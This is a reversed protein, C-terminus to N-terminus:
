RAVPILKEFVGGLEALVEAGPERLHTEFALGGDVAFAEGHADFDFVFVIGRLDAVGASFVAQEDGGFFVDEHEEGGQVDAALGRLASEVDEFLGELECSTLRGLTLPMIPAAVILKRTM